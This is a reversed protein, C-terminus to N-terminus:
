RGEPPIRKEDQAEQPWSARLDWYTTQYAQRYGEVCFAVITVTLVCRWFTRTYM